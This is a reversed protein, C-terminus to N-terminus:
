GVSEPRNALPTALIALRMSFSLPAPSADVRVLDRSRVRIIRARAREMPALRRRRLPSAFSSTMAMLASITRMAPPSDVLGPLHRRVSTPREPAETVAGRPARSESPSKSIVASRTARLRRVSSFRRPPSTGVSRGPQHREMVGIGARDALPPEALGDLEAVLGLDDVVLVAHHEVVVHYDSVGGVFGLQYWCDLPDGAAGSAWWSCHGGVAAVAPCRDFVVEVLEANARHGDRPHTVGTCGAALKLVPAGEAGLDFPSGAGFSADIVELSAVAPVAGVEGADVAGSGPASVADEGMVEDLETGQGCSVLVVVLGVDGLWGGGVVM